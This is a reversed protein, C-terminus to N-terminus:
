RSENEANTKMGGSMSLDYNGPKEFFGSKLLLCFRECVHGDNKENYLHDYAEYQTKYKEKVEDLHLLAEILEQETKLIPGALHNLYDFYFNREVFYSDLDYMYYLIPRKLLSYEMAVSSYDTVLVDSAMYLDYIDSYNNGDIVSDDYEEFDLKNKVEPHLRLILRINKIKSLEKIKLTIKETQFDNERFTPAYLVVLEEDKISLLNRMQSYRTEPMNVIEDSRCSGLLLRPIKLNLASQIYEYSHRDTAIYYDWEQAHPMTKGTNPIRGLDYGEKKTAGPGHWLQIYIQGSRKKVIAEISHTRLWYKSTMLQYYYNFTKKWVIETSEIESVDAGKRVAWKLEYDKINHAKLYEYFAKTHDKVEGVGTELMIKNKQIPFFSFFVQMLTGIIQRIIQKM